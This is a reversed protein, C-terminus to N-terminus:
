LFEILICKNLTLKISNVIKVDFDLDIYGKFHGLAFTEFKTKLILLLTLDDKNSNSINTITTIEKFVDNPFIIIHWFNIFFMLLAIVRKGKIM